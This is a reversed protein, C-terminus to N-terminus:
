RRAASSAPPAPPTAGAQAAAPAVGVGGPVPPPADAGIPPPPPVAGPPPPPGDRGPPPPPPPGDRGPLPGPGQPPGVEEVNGSGDVLFRARLQGNDYRGQVLVANGTALGNRDGSGADVLVRGTSDQVIFRDGYVEAVRGRVTVIGQTSGLRAITTAVTPAMEVAPRGLSMAGAGGAAGIALLAAAGLGLRQRPSMHRTLINTM